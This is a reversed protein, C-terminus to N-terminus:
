AARNTKSTKSKHSPVRQPNRSKAPKARRTYTRTTPRRYVSVKRTELFADIDSQPIMWATGPMVANPFCREAVRRAVSNPHLGLQEATQQVSLYTPKPAPQTM